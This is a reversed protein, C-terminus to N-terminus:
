CSESGKCLQKFTKPKITSKSIISPLYKEDLDNMLESSRMVQDHYVVVIAEVEEKPKQLKRKPLM